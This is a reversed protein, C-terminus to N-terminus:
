LDVMVSPTSNPRTDGCGGAATVRLLGPSQWARSDSLAVGIQVLVSLANDKGSADWCGPM